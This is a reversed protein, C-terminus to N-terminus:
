KLHSVSVSRFQYIFTFTAMAYPFGVGFDSSALGLYVIKRLISAPFGTRVDGVEGYAYVNEAYSNTVALM